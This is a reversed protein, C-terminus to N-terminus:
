FGARGSEAGEDNDDEFLSAKREGLTYSVSQGSVRSRRVAASMAGVVNAAAARNPKYTITSAADIGLQRMLIRTPDNAM